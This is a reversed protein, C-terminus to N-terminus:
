PAHPSVGGPEAPQELIPPGVPAVDDPQHHSEGRPEGSAAADALVDPPVHRELFRRAMVTSPHLAAAAMTIIAAIVLWGAASWTVLVTFAAPAWVRGLTGSLEAAGQYEGRRRPDMLEAEFTWSAASLFLEAGTLTVHGAFFLAVTVWGVSEHTSLTIVCSVVFFATSIRIARLATTVDKVGRAAALPLVICMVTNTSFLLSLVVWPADTEEVLWLPIVLNLIAQNTWLMGTFFSTALWGVNRMPGAGPIKARREETTKLDHPADPLQTIKFSNLAFVLATFVPVAMLLTLSEPGLAIIGLLSGLTFGVNLASYMYARSTVRENPPLVDITYAGHAVGGLAGIVEMVVAMALYGEFSDIFPWVGFMAAQGASSIAWCRRAGIRDVLRGMPYSAVFAAVGALTLGLGVQVKTLGVVQTFFVASGAMFTGEGIAFLLSQTALRGALPSPPKAQDILRRRPATGLSTM